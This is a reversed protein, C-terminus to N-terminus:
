ENWVRGHRSPVPGIPDTQKNITLPSLFADAPPDQEKGKVDVAKTTM